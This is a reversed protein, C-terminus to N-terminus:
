HMQNLRRKEATKSIEVNVQKKKKKKERERVRSEVTNVPKAHKFTLNFGYNLYLNKKLDCSIDRM